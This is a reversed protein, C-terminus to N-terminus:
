YYVMVSFAGGNDALFDDNIGLFLRGSAPMRIPGQEKGILFYDNSNSGIKGILAGGPRRPMPRNANYHNGGEGGADDRRDKGWRVEGSAEFYVERGGRVEIGTDTWATAGHVRVERERMGAPRGTASTEDRDSARGRDRDRDRDADRGRDTERDRDRRVARTLEIGSVDDREFRRVQGGGFLGQERFEIAVFVLGRAHAIAQRGTHTFHLSTM